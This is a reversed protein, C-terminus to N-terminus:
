RIVEESRVQIVENLLPHRAIHPHVMGDHHLCVGDELNWYIGYQVSRGRWEMKKRGEFLTTPLTETNRREEEEEMKLNDLM